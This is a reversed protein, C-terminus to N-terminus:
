AAQLRVKRRLTALGAIAGIVLPLGAPLPVAPAVDSVNVTLSEFNHLRLITTGLGISTGADDEYYAVLSVYGIDDPDFSDGEAFGGFLDGMDDFQNVGDNWRIELSVASVNVGALGTAGFGAQYYSLFADTGGALDVQNYTSSIPSGTSKIQAGSVEFDIDSFVNYFLSPGINTAGCTQYQM